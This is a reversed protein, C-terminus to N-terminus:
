KSFKPAYNGLYKLTGKVLPHTRGFAEKLVTDMKTILVKKQLCKKNRSACKELHKKGLMLTM